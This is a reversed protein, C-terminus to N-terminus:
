ALEANAANPFSSALGSATRWPARCAVTVIGEAQPEDANLSRMSRRLLRSVHMQSCGIQRSIERQTLGHGLRLGLVQRELPLLKAWSRALAHRDEAVGFGDDESGLMDALVYHDENDRAVPADLSTLQYNEGADIAEVAQGVTCQLADALEVVTPSRRLEVSLREAHRSLALAREQVDRPVHITWGKDRFYRKIEGLITPAAFTTFKKGQDPDFRDIANLLGVCAVQVLDDLPERSHIYRLALKRAFPMFRKVLEDRAAPDGDRYNADLLEEDTLRALDRTEMITTTM